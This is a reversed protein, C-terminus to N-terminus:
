IKRRKFIVKIDNKIDRESRIYFVSLSALILLIAILRNLYLIDTKFFALVLLFLFIYFSYVSFLFGTKGSKYWAFSRYNNRLFPYSCLGLIAVLCFFLDRWNSFSLFSGLGGLLFFYMFPLSLSDLVEWFNKKLSNTKWNVTLVAGVFAGALSFNESVDKFLWSSLSFGFQNFNLLVFLLRSFFLASLFAQLIMTFIMEEPYDEKLRKWISFSSIIGAMVLSWFLPTLTIPGITFSLNIM